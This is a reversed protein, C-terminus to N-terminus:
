KIGNRVCAAMVAPVAVQIMEILSLDGTLYAGVAGLIAVIATVYTKKGALFGGEAVSPKKETM